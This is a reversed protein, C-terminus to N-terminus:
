TPRLLGIVSQMSAGRAEAFLNFSAGDPRTMVVFSEITNTASYAL